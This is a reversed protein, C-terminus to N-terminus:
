NTTFIGMVDCFSRQKFCQSLTCNGLFVTDCFSIWPFWHSSFNFDWPNKISHINKNLTRKNKSLKGDKEWLFLFNLPSKITNHGKQNLIFYRLHDQMLKSLTKAINIFIMCSWVEPLFLLIKMCKFNKNHSNYIYLSKLGGTWLHQLVQKEKWFLKFIFDLNLDSPTKLKCWSSFSHRWKSFYIM